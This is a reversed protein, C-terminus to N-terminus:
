FIGSCAFYCLRGMLLHAPKIFNHALPSEVMMRNLNVIRGLATPDVWAWVSCWYAM